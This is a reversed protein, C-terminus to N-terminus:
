LERIGKEFLQLHKVERNANVHEDDVTEARFTIYDAVVQEHQPPLPFQTSLTLAAAAAATYGGFRLDPRIAFARNVGDQLSLMLDADAYRVKAADNLPLRALAVIASCLAM